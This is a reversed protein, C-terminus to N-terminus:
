GDPNFESKERSRIARIMMRHMERDIPYAKMVLIGGVIFLAPVLSMLLRIGMLAHPTQVAKPVYGAMELGIGALFGAISGAVKYCFFFFGYLTAEERLGFRWQAYEVTDPIMAWPCLFLASLGIGALLLLSITVAIGTEGFFFIAVLVGTFIGM